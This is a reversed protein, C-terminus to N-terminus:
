ISLTKISTINGLIIFYWQAFSIMLNTYKFIPAQTPWTNDDILFSALSIPRGTPGSFGNTVFARFKDWSDITGYTGLEQLNVFDDFIFGGKLGQWYISLCFFLLVFFLAATFISQKKTM